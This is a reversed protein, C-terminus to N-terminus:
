ITGYTRISPNDAAVVICALMLHLRATRIKLSSHLQMPALVQATRVRDQHILHSWQGLSM